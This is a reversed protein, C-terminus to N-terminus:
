LPLVDFDPHLSRAKELANRWAILPKNLIWRDGVKLLWDVYPVPGRDDDVGREPYGVYECDHLHEYIPDDICETEPLSSVYDILEACDMCRKTSFPDGDFIGSSYEYVEGKEITKHCEWCKHPKRAKRNVARYAEVYDCM